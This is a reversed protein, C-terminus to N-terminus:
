ICKYNPDSPINAKCKEENVGENLTFDECKDYYARCKNENFVCRKLNGSLLQSCKGELLYNFYSNCSDYDSQVFVFLSFLM